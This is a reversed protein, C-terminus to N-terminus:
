ARRRAIFKSLERLWLVSSAVAVARLWDGASLAVTGFAQQLFPLYVVAAQMAVSGAVALWLWQNTFLRHFASRDDSRANFVNFIQFLMLTTFAMTQAYPLTGTGEVYGGPLAADLVYLTGVMMVIGVLAIGRWMRPTLVGEDPPRPPQSM